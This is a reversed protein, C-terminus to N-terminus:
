DDEDSAHSNDNGEPDQDQDQFDAYLETLFKQWYANRSEEDWHVVPVESAVPAGEPQDSTSYAPELVSAASQSAEETAAYALKSAKIAKITLKAAERHLRETAKAKTALNGFYDASENLKNVEDSFRNNINSM